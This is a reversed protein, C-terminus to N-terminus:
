VWTGTQVQDMLGGLPWTQGVQLNESNCMMAGGKWQDTGARFGM